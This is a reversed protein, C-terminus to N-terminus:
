EVGNLQAGYGKQSLRRALAGCSGRALSLARRSWKSTPRVGGHSTMKLGLRRMWVPVCPRFRQLRIDSFQKENVSVIPSAGTGTPLHVRVEIPDLGGSDKLRLDLWDPSDSAVPAAPTGTISFRSVVQLWAAFGPGALCTEVGPPSHRAVVLAFIESTSWRYAWMKESGSALSVEVLTDAAV